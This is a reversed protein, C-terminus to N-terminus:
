SLSPHLFSPSSFPYAFSFGDIPPRRAAENGHPAATAKVQRIYMYRYKYTSPAAARLAVIPTCTSSERLESSNSM